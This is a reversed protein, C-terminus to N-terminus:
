FDFWSVSHQVSLSLSSSKKWRCWINYANFKTSGLQIGSTSKQIFSVKRIRQQISVSNKLKLGGVSYMPGVRCEWFLILLVRVKEPWSIWRSDVTNKHLFIFTENRKATDRGCVVIVVHLAPPQQPVFLSHLSFSNFFLPPPPRLTRNKKEKKLGERSKM